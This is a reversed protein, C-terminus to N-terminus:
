KLNQWFIIISGSLFYSLFHILKHLRNFFCIIWERCELNIPTFFRLNFFVILATIFHLCPIFLRSYRNLRPIWSSSISIIIPMISTKLDFGDSTVILPFLSLLISYFTLYLLSPALSRFESLEASCSFSM